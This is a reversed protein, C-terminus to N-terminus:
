MDQCLPIVLVVALPQPIQYSDQTIQCMLNAIQSVEITTNTDLVIHDMGDDTVALMPKMDAIETSRDQSGPVQGQMNTTASTGSRMHKLTTM